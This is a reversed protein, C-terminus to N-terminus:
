SQGGYACRSGSFSASFAWSFSVFPPEFIGAKASRQGRMEDALLNMEDLLPRLKKYEACSRLVASRSLKFDGMAAHVAAEKKWGDRVLREVRAGVALARQVKKDDSPRGRRGKGLTLRFAADPNDFADALARLFLSGGLDDSENTVQRLVSALLKEDVTEPPDFLGLAAAIGTNLEHAWGRENM